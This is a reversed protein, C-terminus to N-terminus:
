RRVFLAKGLMAFAGIFVWAVMFHGAMFLWGYRHDGSTTEIIAAALTVLFVLRLTPRNHRKMRM